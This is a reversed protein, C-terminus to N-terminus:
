LAKLSRHDVMARASFYELDDWAIFKLGYLDMYKRVEAMQGEVAQITETMTRANEIACSM